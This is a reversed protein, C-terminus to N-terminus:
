MELLTETVKKAARRDPVKKGQITTKAIEHTICLM